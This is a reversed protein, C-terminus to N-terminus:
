GNSAEEARCRELLRQSELIGAWVARCGQETLSVGDGKENSFSVALGLERLYGWEIQTIRGLDTCVMRSGDRLSLYATQGDGLEAKMLELLAKAASLRVQAGVSMARAMGDDTLVVVDPGGAVGFAPRKRWLSPDTNTQKDM